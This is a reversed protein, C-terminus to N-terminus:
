AVLNSGFRFAAIHIAVEFAIFGYGCLIGTILRRFNTSEYRTMRQISGDVTMPLTLLLGVWWPLRFFCCCVAGVLIGALIGTCRACIPFKRGRFHFSRDDRCHCGFIIPLWKYLWSVLRNCRPM